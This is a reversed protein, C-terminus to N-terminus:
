DHEVHMHNEDIACNMMTVDLSQRYVYYALLSNGLMEQLVQTNSFTNLDIQGLPIM